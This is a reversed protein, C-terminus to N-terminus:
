NIPISLRVPEPRGPTDTRVGDVRVTYASESEGRVIDVRQLRLRPEWRHLAQAVAGFLRVRHEGNFPYDILAFLLSGYGRFMPVTGIPTTLIDAVSQALHATGELRRGTTAHM